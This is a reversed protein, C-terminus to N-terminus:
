LRKLIIKINAHTPKLKAERLKERVKKITEKSIPIDENEFKNLLSAFRLKSSSRVEVPTMIGAVLLPVVYPWHTCKVNDCTLCDDNVRMQTHCHRCLEVPM